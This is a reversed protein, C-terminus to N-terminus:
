VEQVEGQELSALVKLWFCWKRGGGGGGGGVNPGIKGLIGRGRERSGAPSAAPGVDKGSWGSRRTPGGTGEVMTDATVISAVTGGDDWTTAVGEWTRGTGDGINGFTWSQIFSM